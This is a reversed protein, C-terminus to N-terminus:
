SQENHENWAVIEDSFDYPTLKGAFPHSPPKIVGFEAWSNWDPCLANIAGIRRLTQEDNNGIDVEEPFAGSLTIRAKYISQASVKRPKGRLTCMDLALLGACFLNGETLAGLMHKQIRKKAGDLYTKKNALEQKALETRIYRPEDVLLDLESEPVAALLIASIAEKTGAIKLSHQKAFQKLRLTTTFRGVSEIVSIKRLLGSEVLRDVADQYSEGLLCLADDLEYGKPANCCNRAFYAIRLLNTPDVVRELIAWHRPSSTWGFNKLLGPTGYDSIKAALIKDSAESIPGGVSLSFTHTNGGDDIFDFSIDESNDISSPPTAGACCLIELAENKDLMQALEAPTSLSGVCKLDLCPRWKLLEFLVSSVKDNLCQVALHLPTMGSSDLANVNAGAMLLLRIVNASGSKVSTHLPTEGFGDLLSLSAGARILEEVINVLGLRAAQNLPQFLCSSPSQPRAGAKILASVVELHGGRVAACLATETYSNIQDGPCYNVDSGLGLLVKVIELHGKASALKLPTEGTGTLANLDAGEQLLSLVKVLKGSKCAHHLSVNVHHGAFRSPRENM